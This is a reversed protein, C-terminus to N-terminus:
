TKIERGRKAIQTEADARDLEKLDDFVGFRRCDICKGYSDKEKRIWLGVNDDGMPCNLVACRRLLNRM